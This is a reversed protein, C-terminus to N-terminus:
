ENGDEPAIRQEIEGLRERMEDVQRAAEQRVTMLEEEKAALDAKLNEIAQGQILLRNRLFGEVAAFEQSQVAASIDITTM